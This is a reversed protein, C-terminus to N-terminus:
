RSIKIKRTLGEYVAKTEIADLTRGLQKAIQEHVVHKRYLKRLLAVDNKTWEKFHRKPKRM